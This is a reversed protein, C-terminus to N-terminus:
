GPATRRAATPATSRPCWRAAWASRATPRRSGARAGSIAARQVPIEPRAVPEQPEGGGAPHHPVEEDAAQQHARRDHQVVAAGAYGSRIVSHRSASRCRTVQKPVDAGNTAASGLLGPQPRGRLQVQRRDRATPDVPDGSDASPKRSSRRRLDARVHLDRREGAPRVHAGANTPPPGSRAPTSPRSRRGPAPRSPPTTRGSRAFRQDVLDALQHDGRRHRRHRHEEPAVLVARPQPVRIEGVIGPTHRCPSQIRIVARPDHTMSPRDSQSASGRRRASPCRRTRGPPRTPAALDGVRQHHVGRRRRRRPHGAATRRAPAPAADSRPRRGAAAALLGCRVTAAARARRNTGTCTTGRVRFPLFHSTGTFRIRLPPVGVARHAPVRQRVRIREGGEHRIGATFSSTM